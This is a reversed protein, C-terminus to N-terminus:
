KKSVSKGVVKKEIWAQFIGQVDKLVIASLSVMLAIFVNSKLLANKPFIANDFWVQDVLVLILFSLALIIKKSKATMFSFAKGTNDKAKNFQEGIKSM